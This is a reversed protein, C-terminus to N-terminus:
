IDVLLNAKDINSIDLDVSTDGMNLAVAQGKIEKIIGRYNRRNNIEVMLKIKVLKGIHKRFDALTFLPRNTGPSSVELNYKGQIIDEVDLLPDVFKVVRQCDDLSVGEEKDIYLRLVSNRGQAIYKCGALSYGMKSLPEVLIDYVNKEIGKMMGFNGMFFPCLAWGIGM